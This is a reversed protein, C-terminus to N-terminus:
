YNSTKKGLDFINVDNFSTKGNTGGFMVVYKDELLCCSHLSRECPVYEEEDKKKIEIL